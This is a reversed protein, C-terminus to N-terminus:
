WQNIKIKEGCFTASSDCPARLLEHACASLLFCLVLSFCLKYRYTM